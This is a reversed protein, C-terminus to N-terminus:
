ASNAKDLTLSCGMLTRRHQELQTKSLAKTLLDPEMFETPCYQLEFTEDEVRERVFHYKVDNHKTRKQMVPNKCMKICSQNIVTPGDIVVGMEDLLSRLYLAEQVTAAMAQYEAESTSIAATPQKKTSWSIAAGAKQM